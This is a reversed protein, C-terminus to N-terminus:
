SYMPYLATLLALEIITRWANANRWSLPTPFIHSGHPTRRLAANARVKRRNLQFLEAKAYTSGAVSKRDGHSTSISIDHSPKKLRLLLNRTPSNVERSIVYIVNVTCAVDNESAAIRPGYPWNPKQRKLLTHHTNNSTTQIWKLMTHLARATPVFPQM